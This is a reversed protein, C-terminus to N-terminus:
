IYSWHSFLSIFESTSYNYKLIIKVSRSFKFDNINPLEVYTTYIGIIEIRLTDYEESIIVSVGDPANPDPNSYQTWNFFSESGQIFSSANIINLCEYQNNDDPVLARVVTVFDFGHLPPGDMRHTDVRITGADEFSTSTSVSGFFNNYFDQFEEFDNFSISDNNLDSVPEFLSGPNEIM